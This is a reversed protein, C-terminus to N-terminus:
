AVRLHHPPEKDYKPRYLAKLRDEHYELDNCVEWMVYVNQIGEDWKWDCLEFRTREGIRKRLNNSQGVYLWEGTVANRMCYVGPREPPLKSVPMGQPPKVIDSWLSEERRIRAEIVKRKTEPDYDFKEHDDYHFYFSSIIIEKVETPPTDSDSNDNRNVRSIRQDANAMTEETWIKIIEEYKDDPNCSIYKNRQQSDNILDRIPKYNLTLCVAHLNDYGEITRNTRGLMQLFKCISLFDIRPLLVSLKCDPYNFGEKLAECTVIFDLNKDRDNDLYDHIDRSNVYKSHGKVKSQSGLCLISEHLILERHIRTAVETTPAFIIGLAKPYVNRIQQLWDKAYVLLQEWMKISKYAEKFAKHIQLTRQYHPHWTYNATPSILYANESYFLLDEDSISVDQGEVNVVVKEISHIKIQTTTITGSEESDQKSLLVDPILKGDTDYSWFPIRDVYRVQRQDSRTKIGEITLTNEKPKEYDEYYRIRKEPTGSVLHMKTFLEKNCIFFRAGKTYIEKALEGSMNYQRKIALNHCEDLVAHIAIDPSRRIFKILHNNDWVKSEELHNNHIQQYTLVIARVGRNMLERPSTRRMQDNSLSEVKIGVKMWDKKTSGLISLTPVFIIGFVPSFDDYRHFIQYSSKILETDGNIFDMLPKTSKQVDFKHKMADLIYCVATFLTKGSGQYALTTFIDSEQSKAAFTIAGKKQWDRLYVTKGPSTM